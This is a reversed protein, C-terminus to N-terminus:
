GVVLDPLDFQICVLVGLSLSQEALCKLAIRLMTARECAHSYQGESGLLIDLGLLIQGSRFLGLGLVPRCVIIASERQRPQAPFRFGVSFKADGCLEAFRIRCRRVTAARRGSFRRLYRSDYDSGQISCRSTSSAP